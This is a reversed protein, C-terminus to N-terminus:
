SHHLGDFPKGILIIKGSCLHVFYNSLVLIEKSHLHQLKIFSLSNFQLYFYDILIFLFIMQIMDPITTSTAVSRTNFFVPTIPFSSPVFTAISFAVRLSMMSTTVALPFTYGSISTFILGSTEPSIM